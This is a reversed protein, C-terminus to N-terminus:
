SSRHNGYELVRLNFSITIRPYDTKICPLVAHQLYSPFMILDGEEVKPSYFNGCRNSDLELSLNRIQSLPDKFQPPTHNKKDYSLFHICSFHAPVLPDGLHDHLEQYEGDQYVNYWVLDDDIAITYPQDFFSDITRLYCKKLAPLNRSIIEYGPPEGCYSTKLKNTSWDEPIILKDSAELIGDILLDQLYDNRYVKEQFITVPFIEISKM